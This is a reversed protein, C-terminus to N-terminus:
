IKRYRRKRKKRRAGKYNLEIECVIETNIQENSISGSISYWDEGLFYRCLENVAVQADMLPVTTDCDTPKCLNLIHIRNYKNRKM